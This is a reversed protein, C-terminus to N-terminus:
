ANRPKWVDRLKSDRQPGLNFTALKDNSCDIIIMTDGRGLAPTVGNRIQGSKFSSNLIWANETVRATSGMKMLEREVELTSASAFEVMIFYNAPYTMDGAVRSSEQKVVPPAEQETEMSNLMASLHFDERAVKWNAESKEAVVSDLTVLGQRSLQRMRSLTYPGNVEGSLKVYWEPEPNDNAQKSRDLDVLGRKGFTTTQM